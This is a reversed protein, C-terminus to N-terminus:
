IIVIVKMYSKASPANSVMHLTCLSNIQLTSLFDLNLKPSASIKLSRLHQFGLVPDSLEFTSVNRGDSLTFDRINSCGIQITEIQKSEYIHLTHLSTCSSPIVVSTISPLDMCFFSELKTSGKILQSLGSNTLKNLMLLRIYKLNPLLLDDFSTLQKCSFLELFQLNLCRVSLVQTKIGRPGGNPLHTIEQVKLAEYNPNEVQCVTQNLNDLEVHQPNM